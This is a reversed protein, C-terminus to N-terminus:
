DLVSKTANATQSAAHEALTMMNLNASPSVPNNVLFLSVYGNPLEWEYSQDQWRAGYGNMMGIAENKTPKGFKRATELLLIENDVDRGYGDIGPVFILEMRVLKGAKYTLGHEKWDGTPNCVVAPKIVKSGGRLIGNWQKVEKHPTMMSCNLTEGLTHGKISPMPTAAPAQEPPAVPTVEISPTAVPAPTRKPKTRGLEVDQAAVSAVCLLSTLVATIIKV